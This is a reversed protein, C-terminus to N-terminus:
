KIDSGAAESLLAPDLITVNRYGRRILGAREIQALASAAARISVNAVSAIDSQTAEVTEETETQRFYLIQLARIIRAEPSPLRMMAVAAAMSEYNACMLQAFAEWNDPGARCIQRVQGSSLFMLKCDTRAEIQFRRPGQTFIELAGFWWGRRALYILAPQGSAQVISVELIGEILGFLGGADEGQLYIPMGRDFSVLRARTIVEDQFEPTMSKLWGLPRFNEM